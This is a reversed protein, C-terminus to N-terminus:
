LGDRLGKRLGDKLSKEPIDKGLSDYLILNGKNIEDMFHTKSKQEDLYRNMEMFIPHFKIHLKREYKEFLRMITDRAFDQYKTTLILIDIDSKPTAMGRVHSGFLMISAIGLRKVVAYDVISELVNWIKLIVKNKREKSKELSFIDSIRQSYPNDMNIRYAKEKGVSDLTYLVEDKSLRKVERHVIGRSLGTENQLEYITYATNTEILTRLIKIKSSTGILNDVFMKNRLNLLNFM